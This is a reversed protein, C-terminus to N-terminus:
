RSKRSTSIIEIAKNSDQAMTATADSVPQLVGNMMSILAPFLIAIGLGFPKLLPYFDVPEARAIHGWVRSGIYWVAAFGAIARGVGILRSCLPLM